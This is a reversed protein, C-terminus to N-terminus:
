VNIVLKICQSSNIRLINSEEIHKSCWTSMKLLVYNERYSRMLLDGPSMYLTVTGYAAQICSNTRQWDTRGDAHLLESSSSNEHLKIKSIKNFDTSSVDTTFDFFFIACNVHLDLPKWLSLEGIEEQFSFTESFLKLSFWFV